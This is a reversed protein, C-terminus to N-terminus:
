VKNRYWEFCLAIGRVIDVEPTWGCLENIRRYCGISEQIGESCTGNALHVVDNRVVRPGAGKEILKVISNISHGVGSAVNVITGAPFNRAEWIAKVTDEVYVFDRVQKGSGFVTLPLGVLAKCILNPILRKADQHPGYQNFLRLVVVDQGFVEFSMRCEHDAAAKSVAYTGGCPRVPHEETMSRGPWLNSGYVESSSVYILKVHNKRCTDLVNFTGKYNSEIFSVRRLYPASISQSVDTEAALHIVLDSDQVCRDILEYNLVDQGAGRCYLTIEDKCGSERLWVALNRGVFGHGGTILVKM